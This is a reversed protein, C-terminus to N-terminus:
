DWGFILGCIWVSGIIGTLDALLACYISHRIKKIGVSGFYVALTYFTTETSGMMTSTVRGIFSDAGYVNIIDSVVALSASGSIPRLLALPLVEVPIKLLSTLPNLAYALLDIVGSTRIVGIAVMLGILHPLIKIVTKIGDKAGEIFCEYIKVEKYIGAALIIIIIAPIIFGSISKIIEM